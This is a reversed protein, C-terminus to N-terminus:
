GQRCQGTAILWIILMMILAEMVTMSFSPPAQLRHDDRDVAPTDPTTDVEYRHERM